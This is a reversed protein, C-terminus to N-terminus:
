AIELDNRTTYNRFRLLSMANVVQMSQVVQWFSLFRFNATACQYFSMLVDFNQFNDNQVSLLSILNDVIQIQIKEKENQHTANLTSLIIVTGTPPVTTEDQWHREKNTKWLSPWPSYITLTMGSSQILCQYISDLAPQSVGSVIETKKVISDIRNKEITNVNGSLCILCYRWVGSFTCNYFIDLM